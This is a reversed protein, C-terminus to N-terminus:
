AKGKQRHIKIHRGYLNPFNFLPVINVETAEVKRGYSQPKSFIKCLGVM